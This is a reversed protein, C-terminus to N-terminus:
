LECSFRHPYYESQYNMGTHVYVGKKPRFKDKLLSFPPLHFVFTDGSANYSLHNKYTSINWKIYGYKDDTESAWDDTRYIGAYSKLINNLEANQAANLDPDTSFFRIPKMKLRPSKTEILGMKDILECAVAKSGDNFKFYIQLAHFKHDVYYPWFKIEVHADFTTMKYIKKM